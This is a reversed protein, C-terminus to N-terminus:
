IREHKEVELTIIDFLELCTEYKLGYAYFLGTVIYEAWTATAQSIRDAEDPTLKGALEPDLEDPDPCTLKSYSFPGKFEAELELRIFEEIFEVDVKGMGNRVARRTPHITQSREM